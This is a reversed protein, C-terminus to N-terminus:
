HPCQSLCVPSCSTDRCTDFLMYQTATIWERHKVYTARQSLGLARMMVVSPQVYLISSELSIYECWGVQRDLEDIFPSGILPCEALASSFRWLRKRVVKSIKTHSSVYKGVGVRLQVADEIKFYIYKWGDLFRTQLGAM